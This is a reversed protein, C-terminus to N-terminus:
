KAELAYFIFGTGCPHSTEPNERYIPRGAGYLKTVVSIRKHREVDRRTDAFGIVLRPDREALPPTRAAAPSSSGSGTAVWRPRYRRRRRDALASERKARSAKKGAGRLVGETAQALTEQQPKPLEAVKAAISVAIEGSEVRAILEPTGRDRVKKAHLVSRRSVHLAAAADTQSVRLNAGKEEPRHSPMNALKAGIM